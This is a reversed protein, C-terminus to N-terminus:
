KTQNRHQSKKLLADKVRLALDKEAVMQKLERNERLVRQLELEMSTKAGKSLGSSGLEEFKKEWNLISVTSVGFERSAVTLGREKKYNLIELKQEPTWIKRHNSM